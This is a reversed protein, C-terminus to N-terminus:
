EKEELAKIRKEIYAINKDSAKKYRFGDPHRTTWENYWAEKEGEAWSMNKRFFDKIKWFINM